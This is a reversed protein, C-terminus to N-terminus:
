FRALITSKTRRGFRIDEKKIERAVERRYYDRWDLLEQPTLKNLSRGAISYSSVDSDAKGELLSEIKSLMIENHTRPDVNNDLDTLVAWHGRDINIRENDSNREIELQWMYNGPTFGSTTASPITLLYDSGDATASVTFETNAGTSIRSVYRATFLDNPYDQGLDTRKWQIFDGVVIELPERSPANKAEFLNAM